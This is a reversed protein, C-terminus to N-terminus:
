ALLMLDSLLRGVGYHSFFGGNFNTVNKFWVLLLSDSSHKGLTYRSHTFSDTCLLKGQAPCFSLVILVNGEKERKRETLQIGVYSLLVVAQHLQETLEERLHFGKLPQSCSAFDEKDKVAQVLSKKGQVELVVLDQSIRRLRGRNIDYDCVEDCSIQEAVTEDPDRGSRRCSAPDRSLVNVLPCLHPTKSIFLPLFVKLPTQTIIVEGNPDDVM